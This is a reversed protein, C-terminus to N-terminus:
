FTDTVEFWDFGKQPIYLSKGGIVIEVHCDYKGLTDVLAATPTLKVKKNPADTMVCAITEVPATADDKKRYHFEVSTAAALDYTFGTPTLTLEIEPLLAGLKMTFLRSSM